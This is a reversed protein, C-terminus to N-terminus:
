PRLVIKQKRFLANPTSNFIYAPGVPQPPATWRQAQPTTLGGGGGGVIMHDNISSPTQDGEFRMYIYIYTHIKIYNGLPQQSSPDSGGVTM